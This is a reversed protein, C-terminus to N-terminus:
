CSIQNGSGFTANLLSNTYSSSIPKYIQRPPLFGGSFPPNKEEDQFAPSSTPRQFNESGGFHQRGSGGNDRNDLHKRFFLLFLDHKPDRVISAWPLRKENFDLCNSSPCVFQASLNEVLSDAVM